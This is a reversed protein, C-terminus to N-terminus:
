VAIAIPQIRDVASIANAIAQAADRFRGEQNLAYEATAFNESNILLAVRLMEAHFLRHRDLLAVYEPTGRITLTHHSLLWRGISCEDPYQIARLVNPALPERMRIALMLTIKWRVHRSIADKATLVASLGPDPVPM